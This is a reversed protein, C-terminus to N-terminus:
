DDTVEYTIANLLQGTDILAKTRTVKRAKRARITAASLPAFGDQNRINNKAQDRMKMGVKQLATPVAQKDGKKLAGSIGTKLLETAIQRCQRPVPTLFPRAPIGAGPAGNEHLYALSANNLTQSQKPKGDGSAIPKRQSFQSDGIFGVKVNLSSVLHLQRMLKRFVRDGVASADIKQGNNVAYVEVPKQQTM